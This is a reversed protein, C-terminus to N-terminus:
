NKKPALTERPLVLLTGDSLPAFLRGDGADVPAASPAAPLAGLVPFSGGLPQGTAPDLSEFKGPVDSLSLADGVVRPSGALGDGKVRYKWIPLRSDAALCVVHTRDVVVLVRASPGSGLLYPGGTVETGLQMQRVNWTLIPSLNDGDLLQVQGGTDAVVVRPTGSAAPLAIPASAISNNLTAQRKFQFGSAPWSFVSLGRVGNSVLLEDGALPLVYGQANEGLTATKWDPGGALNNTGIALRSLKGSSLPLYLTTGVLAPPGALMDQGIAIAPFEKLPQDPLIQRVLLENAGKDRVTLLALASQGDPATLFRPEGVLDIRPPSLVTGGAAWEDNPGLKVQAADIQYLGGGQDMQYVHKGLRIAEGQLSVGLARQWRVAGTQSEVATAFCGPPSSTQTVVYLVDRDPSIQGAHLPTGLRLSQKWGPALRQGEKRDYGLRNMHLEGNTLYWFTRDDAYVVQSRGARRAANKPAETSVLPFLAKDEGGKQAVGFVAFVGSDTAVSLKEQDCTPTFWSWGNIRIEVPTGIEPRPLALEFARLKMGELGDSQAMILFSPGSQGSAADAAGVVVPEGRLTGAGHGTQLVAELAAPDVKGSADPKPNTDIVFVTQSEAPVFIRSTGMQWAGGGALKQGLPLYGVRSGDFTEILAVRGEDGTLTVWVRREVLIPQGRLPAEFTQMWQAKGTLVERAVLGKGDATPVLVLEPANPGKPIRVPLNSVDIGVRTAWVIQGSTESLAYLVGRAIAFVVREAPNAAGSRAAGVVFLPMDNKPPTQRPKEDLKFVIRKKLEEKVRLIETVVEPRNQYRNKKALGEYEAVVIPTINKFADKMKALFTTYARDEAITTRFTQLKENVAAMQGKVDSTGKSEIHDAMKQSEAVALEAGDYDHGDMAKQALSVQENLLKLYGQWVPVPHEDWLPKKFDDFVADAEFKQLKLRREAPAESGNHVNELAASFDSMFKYKGRDPSKEFKKYLEDYDKQAKSFRNEAFALKAEEALKGERAAFQRQQYVMFGIGGLILVVFMGVIAWRMWRRKPQAYLHAYDTESTAAESGTDAAELDSVAGDAPLTYEDAGNLSVDAPTPAAQMWALVEDPSMQDSAPAAEPEPERRRVPPPMSSWDAERPGSEVPAAAKKPAPADGEFTPARRDRVPQAQPQPKPKQPRPKEVPAEQVQFVQRCSPCRIKQGIMERSLQYQNSCSPCQVNVQV